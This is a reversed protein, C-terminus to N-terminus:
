YWCPNQREEIRYAGAVAARDSHQLMIFSCDNLMFRASDVEVFHRALCYRAETAPYAPKLATVQPPRFFL